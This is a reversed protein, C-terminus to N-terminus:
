NILKIVIPHPLSVKNLSPVYVSPWMIQCINEDSRKVQAASLMPVSATLPLTFSIVNLAHHEIPLYVGTAAEPSSWRTAINIISRCWYSNRTHLSFDLCMKYFITRIHKNDGFIYVKRCLSRKQAQSLKTLLEFLAGGAIQTASVATCYVARYYLELLQEAIRTSKSM